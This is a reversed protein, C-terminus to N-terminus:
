SILKGNLNLSHVGHYKNNNEAKAHFKFNAYFLVMNLKTLLKVDYNNRTLM